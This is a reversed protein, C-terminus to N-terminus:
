LKKSVLGADVCQSVSRLFLSEFVEAGWRARAKSLVSHDPIADDLGYGIFWLYDLREAFNRMLERESRVDDWFLLFMLKVIVEPDISVKGKRGYRGAVEERVFTFDM